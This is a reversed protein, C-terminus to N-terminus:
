PFNSKMKPIQYLVNAHDVHLTSGARSTYYNSVDFTGDSTLVKGYVCFIGQKKINISISSEFVNLFILFYILFIGKM